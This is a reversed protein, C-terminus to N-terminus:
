TVYIIKISKQKKETQSQNNFHILSTRSREWKVEGRKGKLQGEAQRKRLCDNIFIDERITKTRTKSIYIKNM